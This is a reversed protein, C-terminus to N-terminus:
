CKETVQTFGINKLVATVRNAHDDGMLNFCTIDIAGNSGVNAEVTCKGKTSLHLIVREIRNHQSHIKTITQHLNPTLVPGVSGIMSLASAQTKNHDNQGWFIFGDVNVELIFNHRENRSFYALSDNWNESDHDYNLKVHNQASRYIDYMTPNNDVFGGGFAGRLTNVFEMVAEAKVQVAEKNSIEEIMSSGIGTKLWNKSVGLASALKDINYDRPAGKKGLELSAVCSQSVGAKSALEAQSMNNTQRTRAWKIRQGITKM